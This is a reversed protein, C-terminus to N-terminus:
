RRSRVSMGRNGVTAYRAEQAAKHVQGPVISVDEGRQLRGVRDLMTRHAEIGQRQTIEPIKRYVDLM